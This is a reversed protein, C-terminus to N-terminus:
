RKQQTRELPSPHPRIAHAGRLEDVRALISHGSPGSLDPRLEALPVLVFLRSWLEPHPITLDPLDLSREGYLLIDVDLPRPGWRPGPQRGLEAEIAKARRLLTEPSLSTDAEVVANLFWPQDGPGVPETEYVRSCRLIRVGPMAALREVAARLNRERDGLNSGLGLYVREWGEGL